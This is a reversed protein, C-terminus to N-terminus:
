LLFKDWDTCRIGQKHLARAIEDATKKGMGRLAWIEWQDLKVLDSIHSYQAQSLVMRARISLNLSEVPSRLLEDSLPSDIGRNTDEAGNEYGAKYGLTYGRNYEGTSRRKLYGAVGYQIYSWRSPLRMKRLVKLEIQRIREQSIGLSTGIASRVKQEQYRQHLINQEREDLLSLVYQLGALVDPTLAQPLMVESQGKVAILLNYPYDNDAINTTTNHM